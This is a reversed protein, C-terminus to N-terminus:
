RRLRRWAALGALRQRRLQRRAQRRLRAHIRNSHFRAASRQEQAIKWGIARNVWRGAAALGAALGVTSAIAGPAATTTM